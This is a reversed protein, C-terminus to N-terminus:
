FRETLRDHAERMMEQALSSVNQHKASHNYLPNVSNIGPVSIQAASYVRENVFNQQWIMKKDSNRILKLHIEVVVRYGTNIVTNKPLFKLEANRSNAATQGNATLTVRNVKGEIYVPSQSKETIQAVRSREFERILANTFYSEMGVEQTNNSFVPISVTRYGGPLRRTQYGLKYACSVILFTSLSMLAYRFM